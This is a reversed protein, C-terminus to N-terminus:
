GRPIEGNGFRLDASVSLKSVNLRPLLNPTVTFEQLALRLTPETGYAIGINALPVMGLTTDQEEFLHALYDPYFALSRLGESATLCVGEKENLVCVNAYGCRFYYDRRVQTALDSVDYSSILFPLRSVVLNNIVASIESMNGFSNFPFLLLCREPSARLKEPDVLVAIEEAKGLKFQYSKRCFGCQVVRQLGADIYKPVIDIGLYNKSHSVAWNLYRGHMCGIEVLLDFGDNVITLLDEESQLFDIIEATYCSSDLFRDGFGNKYFDISSAM